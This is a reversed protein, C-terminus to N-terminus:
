YLCGNSSTSFSRRSEYKFLLPLKTQVASPDPLLHPPIPSIMAPSTPVKAIQSKRYPGISAHRTHLFADLAAKQFYSLPSVAGAIKSSTCGLKTFISYFSLCYLSWFRHNHTFVVNLKLHLLRYFRQQSHAPLFQSYMNTGLYVSPIVKTETILSLRMWTSCTPSFQKPDTLFIMLSKPYPSM